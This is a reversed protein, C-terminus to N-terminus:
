SGFSRSVSFMISKNVKTEGETQVIGTPTISLRPTTMRAILANARFTVRGILYDIRTDWAATEQDLPGGLMPLFANGNMRLDSILILRRVGFLRQNRYTIGGSSTTAFGDKRQEGVRVLQFTDQNQRTAQITLNGSWSTDSGTPYNSSLQLNVMQFFYKTGALSRSDSVGLRAMANAAGESVSWSVGASHTIAQDMTPIDLEPLTEPAKTRFSSTLGQSFDLAVKSGGDLEFQRNLSQSLQLQLQASNFGPDIIQNNASASANWRYQFGALDIHEPSYAISASQTHFMRNEGNVTNMSSAISANAMTTPSLAYSLGLSLSATQLRSKARVPVPTAGSSDLAINEADLGLVRVSGTVTLPEEEPRWFVITGVQAVRNENTGPNFNYSSQSVNATTDVTTEYNPSYSHNASLNTQGSSQGTLAQKATIRTGNVNINQDELRYAMALQLHDGTSKGGGGSNTNHDWGMSADFGSAHRYNQTFGARQMMVSGLMPQGEASSRSYSRDFHAEFPFNSRHLLSLKGNGSLRLSKTGSSRSRGAVDFDSSDRGMNVRLDTAIQGFWPQWLYSNFRGGLMGNMGQHTSKESDFEDSGWEYGVVGYWGIRPAVLWPDDWWSREGTDPLPEKSPNQVVVPAAVPAAAESSASSSGIAAPPLAAM